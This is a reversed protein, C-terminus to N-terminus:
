RSRFFKSRTRKNGEHQRQSYDTRFRVPGFRQLDGYNRFTGEPQWGRMTSGMALSSQSTGPQLIASATLPSMLPRTGVHEDTVELKSPQEKNADDDGNEGDDCVEEKVVVMLGEEVRSPRVKREQQVEANRESEKPLTGMEIEQQSATVPVITGELQEVGPSRAIGFFHLTEWPLPIMSFLPEDAAEPNPVSDVGMSSAPACICSVCGITTLVVIAVVHGVGASLSTTGGLFQDWTLWVGRWFGVTAWGLLYTRLRGLLERFWAKTIYQDLTGMIPESMFSYLGYALIFSWLISMNVDRNSATFGWLYNDLLLWSGRWFWVVAFPLVIFSSPVILSRRRQRRRPPPAPTMTTTTTNSFTDTLLPPLIFCLNPVLGFSVVHEGPWPLIIWIREWVAYSVYRLLLDLVKIPM